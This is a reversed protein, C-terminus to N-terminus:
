FAERVRIVLVGTAVVPVRADAIERSPVLVVPTLLVAVCPTVRVPAVVTSRLVLTVRLVPVVGEVTRRSAPVVVVREPPVTVRFVAGVRLLPVTSRLLEVVDRPLPVTLRLEAGVRLVPVTFLPLVVVRLLPVTLRLEVCVRLLPVTFRLLLVVERLLPVTLRLEVCVRLLPVTLRLLVGGDRLLPVTFRLLLVVRLLPLEEERDRLSQNFCPHILRQSTGGQEKLICRAM